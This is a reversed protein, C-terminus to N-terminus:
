FTLNARVGVVTANGAVRGAPDDADRVHGGPHVIYQFDPQVSWWPTLQATYSVEFVMEYNRVPFAPDADFVRTDRDLDAARGSIRSYAVGLALVDNEREPILGKLGLGGDVYFSVLNRDDPAAGVRSFLSISRAGRAWVTQDAAAYIGKDGRHFYPDIVSPDALSVTLGGADLGFRQDAFRSNQYWAGIKYVGPLGTAGEGQNLAYQLEGMWLAGGSMSFTTGHRNCVQPDEFCNRGAPDGSFVAGLITVDQVPRIQVRLGPSALPYAPGGGTMNASAIPAWGFTGNLLHAGTDSTMFEDDAALQGARISLADNFFSQELWLTFLRTSQRAEINSPGAISGTYNVAPSGNAHHIQFGSAHASGGQWGALKELDLDLSLEVRGGYSWGTKVGGSLNGFAESAYNLGVEIGHARMADRAGGWDGTMYDQEQGAFSPSGAALGEAKAPLAACSCLIAVAISYCNRKM